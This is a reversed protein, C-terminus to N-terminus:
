RITQDLERRFRGPSVGRVRKFSASFSNESTYGLTYAIEGLSDDTSRLRDEALFMRWHILYEIPALGVKAKFRLAFGTRSMCAIEALEQVSWTRSPDAHIATITPALKQDALAYLWGVEGQVQDLYARLTHILFMQVYQQLILSSGPKAPGLVEERMQRICWTLVKHTGDNKVHIIPPLLSLFFDAPAGDFTCHGALCLTEGGGNVVIPYESANESYHDLADRPSIDLCSGAILGQSKPILFCDGTQAFVPSELGKLKM